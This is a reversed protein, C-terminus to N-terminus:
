GELLLSEPDEILEKIRVLFSVAEAYIFNGINSGLFLFVRRRGRPRPLEQLTALYDGQHLEYRIDKSIKQLRNKLQTLVDASIDIPHYTFHANHATLHELLQITKEGDGAGLEILDFPGEASFCRGLDDKYTQFIEYECRTLYYDPMKMIEQFIRDGAADYFLWSPLYKDERFLGDEVAAAVAEIATGTMMAKQM